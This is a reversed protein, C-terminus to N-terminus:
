FGGRPASTLDTVVKSLSPISKLMKIYEPSQKCMWFPNTEFYNCSYREWYESWSPPFDLPLTFPGTVTRLIAECEIQKAVSIHYLKEVLKRTGAGPQKEPPLKLMSAQLKSREWQDMNFLIRDEIKIGETQELIRRGLASLLPCGNYQYCLSYGRARLLQLQTKENCGVYKKNTLGLRAIPERPDTVVILDDMDYVQGCFSAESLNKTSDIKIEIGLAKYQATTPDREPHRSAFLGDDGEVSGRIDSERLGNEHALFLYMMLNMFGNSLSTDMEGSMRTAEILITFMKFQCINQGAKYDKLFQDLDKWCELHGVMHKFLRYEGGLQLERDFHAEFSTADTSRYLTGSGELDSFLQKLFLPRESVPVKKIFWPSKFLEDSISQVIPGFFCKAEDIRSNIARPYKWIPYPENKWFSKIRKWTRNPKGNWNKHVKQLEAKRGASYDVGSLWEEFTSVDALPKLNRKLWLDIFRYFRRRMKRNFKPPQFAVRKALGGLGSLPDGPDAQPPTFGHLCIPLTQSLITRHEYFNLLDSKVSVISFKTKVDPLRIIPVETM